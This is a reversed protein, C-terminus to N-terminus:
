AGDTNQVREQIRDDLLSVTKKLPLARACVIYALEYEARVRVWARVRM